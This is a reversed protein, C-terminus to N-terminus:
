TEEARAWEERRAVALDESSTDEDDEAAGQVEPANNPLDVQMMSNGGDQVASAFILPLLLFWAM